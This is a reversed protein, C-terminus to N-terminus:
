RGVLRGGLTGRLSTGNLGLIGNAASAGGVTLHGPFAAPSEHEDPPAERDPHSGARGLLAHAHARASGLHAQGGYVGPTVPVSAM